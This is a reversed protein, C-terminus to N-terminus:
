QLIIDEIAEFSGELSHTKRICTGYLGSRDIVYFYDIEKWGNDTYLKFLFFSPEYFGTINEKNEFFETIKDINQNM